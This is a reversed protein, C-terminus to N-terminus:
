AVKLDPRESSNEASFFMDHLAKIARDMKEREVVFQCDVRRSTQQAAIVDIDQEDLARLGRSLVRLGTLDRGIVSVLSLARETVTASPYLGELEEVVRRVKDRTASVFHTITNANSSKSVIWLNHKSLVELIRADYGKVGVMDQEYLEISFINLGTVIEVGPADAPQDDILTGPDEPEFANAVRLPVGAQRLTKAASPHIAEMGMNSLQDAVDYNTRGLKVVNEAGVAKPDASSLHFEKHIVAESAQTHAAIRSFTVESYGRDFEKMLGESCQAYGTVIPLEESFDIDDLGAAIREELTHEAEDRWGTLDVFRAAVGRRQLLLSTVFASHAEGLGSLLERIVMLQTSMRFHGYSCIRQIDFLCSRAGEIRERVFDDALQMDAKHELVDAHIRRMEQSVTNLADLWGHDDDDNIFLAYVGQEGSKKHELLLNTIGGFASVVFVRNYIDAKARDGIFMPDLLDHVKSMTTGGIKEVSHNKSSM